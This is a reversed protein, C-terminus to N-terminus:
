QQGYAGVSKLWERFTLYHRELYNRTLYERAWAVDANKKRRAYLMGANIVVTRLYLRYARWLPVIHTIIYLWSM